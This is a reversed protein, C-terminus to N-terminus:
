ATENSGVIRLDEMNIKTKQQFWAILKRRLVLIAKLQLGDV